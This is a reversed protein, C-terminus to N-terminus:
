VTSILKTLNLTLKVERMCIGAPFEFMSVFCKQETLNRAYPVFHEPRCLLHLENAHSNMTEDVIGEAL